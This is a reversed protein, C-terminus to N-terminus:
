PTPAFSSYEKLTGAPRDKVIYVPELKSPLKTVDIPGILAEHRFLKLPVFQSCCTLDTM